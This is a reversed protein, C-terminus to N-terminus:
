LLEKAREFAIDAIVPEFGLPRGFKFRIQPHKTEMEVLIEPISDIIHMEEFLFYPVVLIKEAQKMALQDITDEINPFCFDMYAGEVWDFENKTRIHEVVKTFTNQTEQVRNGPAVVILATKM